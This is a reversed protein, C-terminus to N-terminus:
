DCEAPDIKCTEACGEELGQYCAQNTYTIAPGPGLRRGIELCKVSDGAMCREHEEQSVLDPVPNPWSIQREGSSTLNEIQYLEYVTIRRQEPHEVWSWGRALQAAFRAIKAGVRGHKKSCTAIM